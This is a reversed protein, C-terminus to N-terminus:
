PDDNGAFPMTTSTSASYRSSALYAICSCAYYPDARCRTWGKCILWKFLLNAWYRGSKRIGYLCLPLQLTSIRSQHRRRFGRASAHISTSTTRSLVTTYAAVADLQRFNLQMAVVITFFVRRSFIRIIPAYTQNETGGHRRKLMPFVSCVCASM